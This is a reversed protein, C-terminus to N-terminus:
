SWKTHHLCSCLDRSVNTVGGFLKIDFSANQIPRAKVWWINGTDFVAKHASQASDSRCQKWKTPPQRWAGMQQQCSATPNAWDKHLWYKERSHSAEEPCVTNKRHDAGHDGNTDPHSSVMWLPSPQHCCKARKVRQPEVESPVPLRFCLIFAAAHQDGTNFARSHDKGQLYQLRGACQHTSYSYCM